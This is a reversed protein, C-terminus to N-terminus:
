RGATISPARDPITFIAIIASYYPMFLLNTEGM